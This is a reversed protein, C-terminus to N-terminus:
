NGAFYELTFLKWSFVSIELERELVVLGAKRLCLVKRNLGIAWGGFQTMHCM